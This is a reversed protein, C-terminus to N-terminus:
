LCQGCAKRGAPIGALHSPDRPRRMPLGPGPGFRGPLGRAPRGPFGTPSGSVRRPDGPQRAAGAHRRNTDRQLDAAKRGHAEEATAASRAMAPVEVAVTVAPRRSSSGDARRGPAPRQWMFSPHRWGRGTAPLSTSVKPVGWPRPSLRRRNRRAPRQRRRCVVKVRCRPTRPGARRRSSARQFSAAEGSVDGRRLAQGPSSGPGPGM